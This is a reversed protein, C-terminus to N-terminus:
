FSHRRRNKRVPNMKDLQGRLLNIEQQQRALTDDYEKRMQQMVRNAAGVLKKDNKVRERQGELIAKLRGIELHADILKEHVLSLHRAKKLPISEPAKQAGFISSAPICLIAFFIFLLNKKFLM